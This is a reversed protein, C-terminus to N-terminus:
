TKIPPLVFTYADNELRLIRFCEFAQAKRCETMILSCAKEFGVWHIKMDLPLQKGHLHEHLQIHRQIVSEGHLTKAGIQLVDYIGMCLTNKKDRYVLCYCISGPPFLARLAQWRAHLIYMNTSANSQAIIINQQVHLIYFDAENPLIMAAYEKTHPHMSISKRHMSPRPMAAGSAILQAANCMTLIPAGLVEHAHYKATTQM